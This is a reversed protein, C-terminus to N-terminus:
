VYPIAISQNNSL